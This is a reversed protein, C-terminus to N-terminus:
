DQLDRIANRYSADTMLNENANMRRERSYLFLSPLLELIIRWGHGINYGKMVDSVFGSTDYRMRRLKVKVTDPWGTLDIKSGFWEKKGDFVSELGYAGALITEEFMSCYRNKDNKIKLIRYVSHIEKPDSDNNVDPIKDVDVGESRLNSKLQDIQELLRAREEEEEERRLFDDDIKSESSRGLVDAIYSQRREEETSYNRNRDRDRDRDRYRDRDEKWSPHETNSYKYSSRDPSSRTDDSDSDEEITYGNSEHHDHDSKRSPSGRSYREDSYRSHKSSSDKGWSLLEDIDDNTDDDNDLDPASGLLDVKYTKNLSGLEKSFENVVDVDDDQKEKEYRSGQTISKELDEIDLDEDDDALIEAMGIVNKRSHLSDM